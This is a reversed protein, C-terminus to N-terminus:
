VGRALRALLYKPLNATEMKEQVAAINYPVRRIELTRTETDLLACSAHPNHDRPQGVSGPNVLYRLGRQLAVRGGHPLTVQECTRATEPRQYYEAVHTHGLLCLAGGFADFCDLAEEPTTVYAMTEPLSGHVLVAGAIEAREPLSGLFEKEEATLQAATWKAAVRAYPNFQNLDYRGIAALDHNGLLCTLHPLARIRALCASPDPGYGVLDGLCLFAEAEPLQALVADLAELNSHVDSILGYIM